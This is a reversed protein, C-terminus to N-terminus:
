GRRRIWGNAIAMNALTWQDVGLHDAVVALSFGRRLMEFADEKQEASM